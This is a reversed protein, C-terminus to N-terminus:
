LHYFVFIPALATKLAISPLQGATVITINYIERPNPMVDYKDKFTVTKSIGENKYTLTWVNLKVQKLVAYSSEEYNLEEGIKEFYIPLENNVKLDQELDIKQIYQKDDTFLVYKDENKVFNKLVLRNQDDLGAYAGSKNLQHIEKTCDQWVEKIEQLNQDILCSTNMFLSYLSFISLSIIKM